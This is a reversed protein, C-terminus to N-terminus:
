EQKDEDELVATAGAEDEEQEDEAEDEEEDDDGFKRAIDRRVKVTLYSLMGIGFSLIMSVIGMYISTARLNYSMRFSSSSSYELVISANAYAGGRPFPTNDLIVVRDKDNEEEGSKIAHSQLQVHTFLHAGQSQELSCDKEWDSDFVAQKYCELDASTGDVVDFVLIDFEFNQFNNTIGV